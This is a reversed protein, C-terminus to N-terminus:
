EEWEGNEDSGGGEGLGLRRWDRVCHRSGEMRPARGQGRRRGVRTSGGVRGGRIGIGDGRREAGLQGAGEASFPTAELDIRKRLEKRNVM